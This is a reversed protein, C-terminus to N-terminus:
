AYYDLLKEAVRSMDAEYTGSDIAQKLQLVRDHRIDHVDALSKQAFMVAKLENSIEVVDLEAPNGTIEKRKAPKHHQMEHFAAKVVDVRM